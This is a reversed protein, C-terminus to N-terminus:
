SLRENVLIDRMPLSIAFEAGEGPASICSIQGGHKDVVIQYSISLGLGTGSGVPKTTFFPDFIKSRVAETMGQGNDAIRIIVNQSERVETRITITPLRAENDRVASLADIANNLINMFVQNLESAYCTVKPLQGYEKIVEIGRRQGEEKLRSQFLMLTSDIGEHINVPKKSSEDLRSFNRLSLVIQRIREAGVQMSELIKSLDERLFDLEIAETEAEIEPTSHPYTQQYLEILGIMQKTYAQAYSLNGYIFNIPNNIEHAVGAVLQGLSSMKETQILQSQTQQLERLTKQLQNAQERLQAESQQLAGEALKRETIDQVTGFLKIVKGAADLIAQGKIYVYRVSGDPRLIRFDFQYTEGSEMAQEITTQWFVFDDPHIQREHESFTPVGQSPDLGFIRFSEDSWSMEKTSIDFEWSGLHAIRQAEALRTEKTQLELTREQVKLELTQTYDELQENAQKLKETTDSLDAVLRANEISIAAQSSLMKLVELREETFAGKTLNNELYLFAIAKGQNIIPTCLVSLPKNAIIYPDTTFIGENQADNLLVSSKTRQVYNITTVPVVQGIQVAPSIQVNVEGSNVEGFAEVVLSGSQNLILFGKQAGANEIAIKMLKNLLKNLVIESSIAQTAKMFTALDLLEARGNTTLTTTQNVTIAPPKRTIIRELFQPYRSELDTVKAKAGWRIYGYYAETLYFQAIKQNGRALHFEAALENALAEEQIYGQEGAGTIARDYLSIAEALQGLVRAKEAEILDYKHQFNCPAHYAWLKMKEQNSAVQHLYESQQQEEVNAYHALLALSYYFNHEAVSIAGAAAVTYQEAKKANEVAMGPEKLIYLLLTKALYIFFLSTANNSEIFIPLSEAENFAEGILLSLEAPKCILNLIMQRFIRLVYWIYEQKFKLMSNIYQVFYNEVIELHEGAFFIYQCYTNVSYGSGEIDGTELGIQIAEQLPEITTRTHEKWHRVQCNFVGLVRSELERADLKDLVRLAVQGYRYGSDIEGLPGCMLLGYVAYGYSAPSSNGYKISLHIMTFILLPLLGPNAVYAPPMIKMLIQMAALKYLDTMKPLYILEEIIVDKPLEQELTVGLMELVELGTDIASQMQLQAMYMQIQAEYVKVKDLLNTAKQLVIEAYANAQEFNTNLYEAAVAEVYLNLTLKYNSEWSSAALLGIGVNLYNVAAEYATAALAKQGAILNLEALEDKESKATILDTGFNLQNVLAFINEQSSEPTTNALLLQGIKLHTAKKESEPILSYAAQQVRDHLFKYDIKVDGLKLAAAESQGFVLPIKYTDSLPLILGAQLADWLAQATVTQFEENVIALVELNFQNGICAALKLVKVTENPFKQINKAILEVINNDTIGIAQISEISWEWKGSSVEYVLLKEAYLTKLLTTLFFPNGQTKNFLLESLPTTSSQPSPIQSQPSPIQSQSNPIQSQSNTFLSFEEGERGEGNSPSPNPTPNREGLTDAVLSSVHHLSLPELIINNVATGTEQIKNITSILPHIPSVENDRYAGIMLLYQSDSDTMILQILKLSASDAWQLDDLFIVLPHEPQCFVHIFQQFVLNLRNQSETPGMQPVAPQKGIILEVEPIVDVIVQGNQGLANLLQQQFKEIETQSLTLIQRILDQFAQILAAYPINRKFQDFKGAIFYGRAGVIPKHVENVVSTKGIGSYGSVLLLEIQSQPNKIKSEPNGAVREFAELLTTIEAERGYLKQPILLQGSKDRTGVTFHPISGTTELQHVCFELDYKLGLATQYRAEATKALLKMVIDSVAKPIRKEGAGSEKEGGRPAPLPQPHPQGEAGRGRQGEAGMEEPPVPQKAIHCHVLEMPDTSPFPLQGTLMEYLTVGLSYFDSRYDISRNMRGTAEPSIYALTGVIENPNTITPTEWDLRSAIGFDALKIEGTSPNIIINSPKIDKHIIPIKHLESLTQALVIALRLIEKLELKQSALLRDLSYCGFDELIIALGNGHKELSYTKVVGECNLNHVIAYEQRLRTIEELTPYESKLAKIIVSIQRVEDYARYIVTNIGSYIEATIQCGSIAFM